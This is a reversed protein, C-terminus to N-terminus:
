SWLVSGPLIPTGRRVPVLSTRFTNEATADRNMPRSRIISFYLAPITRRTEKEPPQSGGRIIRIKATSEGANVPSVLVSLAAFLVVCTLVAFYDKM